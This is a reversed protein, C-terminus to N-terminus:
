LQPHLEVAPCLPVPHSNSSMGGQCRASAECVRQATQRCENQQKNAPKLFLSAKLDPGRRNGNMTLWQLPKTSLQPSATSSGPEPQWDTMRPVTLFLSHPLILSGNWDPVTFASFCDHPGCSARHAECATQKQQPQRRGHAGQGETM